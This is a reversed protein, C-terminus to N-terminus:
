MSSAACSMAIFEYPGHCSVVTVRILFIIHDTALCQRTNQTTSHSFFFFFVVVISEIRVFNFASRVSKRCFTPCLQVCNYFCKVINAERLTRSSTIYSTLFLPILHIFYKFLFFPYISVHSVHLSSRCDM